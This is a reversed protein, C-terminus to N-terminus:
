KTEAKKAKLKAKSATKKKQPYSQTKVTPGPKQRHDSTIESPQGRRHDAVVTEALYPNNCNLELLKRREEKCAPSNGTAYGNHIVKMHDDWKPRKEEPCTPHASMCIAGPPYRTARGCANCANRRKKEGEREKRKEGFALFFIGM